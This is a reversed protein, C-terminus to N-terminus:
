EWDGVRLSKGVRGRVENGREHVNASGTERGTFELGTERAKERLVGLYGCVLGGVAGGTTAGLGGVREKM